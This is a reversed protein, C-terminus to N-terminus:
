IRLSINTMNGYKDKLCKYIVKDNKQYDIPPFLNTYVLLNKGAITYERFSICYFGPLLIMVNYKVHKTLSPNTQNQQIYEIEVSGFYLQM